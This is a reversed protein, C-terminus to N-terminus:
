GMWSPHKPVGAVESMDGDPYAKARKRKRRLEKAAKRVDHSLWTLFGLFAIALLGGLFVEPAQGADGRVIVVIVSVCGLGAALVVWALDLVIEVLLWIRAWDRVIRLM